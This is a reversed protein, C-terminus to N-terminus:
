PPNRRQKDRSSPNQLGAALATVLIPVLREEAGRRVATFADTVGVHEVLHHIHVIMM